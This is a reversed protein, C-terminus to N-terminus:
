SSLEQVTRYDEEAQTAEDAYEIPQEMKTKIMQMIGLVVSRRGENYAMALTNEDFTSDWISCKTMLDRLVCKGQESRFVTQYDLEIPDPKSEVVLSMEEQRLLM